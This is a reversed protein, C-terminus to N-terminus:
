SVQEQSNAGVSYNSSYIIIRDNFHNQHLPIGHLRLFHAKFKINWLGRGLVMILDKMLITHFWLECESCQIM